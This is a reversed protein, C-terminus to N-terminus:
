YGFFGDMSEGFLDDDSYTSMRGLMPDIKTAKASMPSYLTSQTMYLQPIYDNELDYQNKFIFNEIDKKTAAKTQYGAPKGQEDFYTPLYVTGKNARDALNLLYSNINIIQQAGATVTQYLSKNMSKTLPIDYYQGDQGSVRMTIGKGDTLTYELDGKQINRFDEKSLGYKKMDSETMSALAQKLLGKGDAGWNQAIKGSYNMDYGLENNTYWKKLNANIDQRNTHLGKSDKTYGNFMGNKYMFSYFGQDFYAQKQYRYGPGTGTSSPTYATVKSTRDFLAKMGLDTISKLSGDKNLTLYKKAAYEKIKKKNAEIEKPSLKGQVWANMTGNPRNNAAAAAKAARKAMDRQFARQKAAERAQFAQQDKQLAWVDTLPQVAEKGIASWLGMTIYNTAQKYADGEWNEKVGSADLVQNYIARLVKNGQPSNPNAVFAAIENSNLGYKQKFMLYGPSQSKEIVATRLENQLNIAMAQAQARLLEGSQRVPAASPNAMLEQLSINGASRDYLSTPDQMSLQQQMAILRERKAQADLLPQIDKGYQRFLEMFRANDKGRLGYKSLNSAQERLRDAYAKYKAYSEQDVASNALQELKDAQLDLQTYKEELERQYQTQTIVPHLLEQYSMPQFESNVIFSSSPM